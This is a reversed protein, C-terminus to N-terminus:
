IVPNCFDRVDYDLHKEAEKDAPECYLNAGEILQELAEIYDNVEIIEESTEVGNAKDGIKFKM